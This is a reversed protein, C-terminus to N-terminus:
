RLEAKWVQVHSCDQCCARGGLSAKRACVFEDAKCGNCTRPRDADHDCSDCCAASRYERRDVCSSWTAGCHQCHRPPVGAAIM